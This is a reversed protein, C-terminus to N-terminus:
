CDVSGGATSGVKKGASCVVQKLALLGGWCAAWGVASNAAMEDAMLDGWCVWLAAMLAASQDASGASREVMWLASQEVKREGRLGTRECRRLSHM